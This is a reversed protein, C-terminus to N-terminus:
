IRSIIKWSLPLAITAVCIKVVDGIIFPVMGIMIAKHGVFAALWSVGCLYIVLNGLVMAASMRIFGRDWGRESLLGTLYAAFAFGALYGGTPGALYLLGFGGHAFVPMGSIGEAVYALVALFGRKSGLLAGILLVAFTQGTVPVPSFPLVISLRASLAILASGALVLVIDYIFASSKASPRIIDAYTMAKTNVM